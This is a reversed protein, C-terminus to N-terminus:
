MIFSTFELLLGLIFRPITLGSETSKVPAAYTKIVERLLYRSPVQREYPHVATGLFWGVWFPGLYSRASIFELLGGKSFLVLNYQFGFIWQRNQGIQRFTHRGKVSFYTKTQFIFQITVMFKIVGNTSKKRNVFSQSLWFRHKFSAKKIICLGLLRVRGGKWHTSQYVYIRFKGPHSSCFSDLSLANAGTQSEACPISGATRLSPCM